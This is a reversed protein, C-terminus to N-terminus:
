ERVKTENLLRVIDTHGNKAALTLATNDSSDVVNVDAGNHLLIIVTATHGREAALMLATQYESGKANVNAGNAILIQVTETHGEEAAAMLAPRRIPYRTDPNMGTALFLQVAATDGNEAAGVFAADTYPIGMEELQRRATIEQFIFPTVLLSVVIIGLASLTVIELTPSFHRGAKGGTGRRADIMGYIWFATLSSLAVLSTLPQVFVGRLLMAGLVKWLIISIIYFALAKTTEGKYLQGFGPWLFSLLTAVARSPEPRENEQESVPRRHPDSTFPQGCHGCFRAADRNEGWCYICPKM